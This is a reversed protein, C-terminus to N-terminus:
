TVSRKGSKANCGQRQNLVNGWSALPQPRKRLDGPETELTRSKRIRHPEPEPARPPSVNSFYRHKQTKLEFFALFIVIKKLKTTGFKSWNRVTESSKLPQIKKNLTKKDHAM